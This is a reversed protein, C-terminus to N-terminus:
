YHTDAWKQFKHWELFNHICVARQNALRTGPPQKRKEIGRGTFYYIDGFRNGSLWATSDVSDFHYIKMGALNTFGLGHIKAGRKHAESILYSFVPYEPPKIEGSVIGGVAVYRYQDCLRLFEDRGRSRHWVPICPRGVRRELERRLALVREHGVLSDIDLEFFKEVRNRVIFDAYRALYGNWDVGSSGPAKAQMFTFAGSDLMFDALRPIMRETTEDAYFFSELIYCPLECTRAFATREGQKDGQIGALFVKM